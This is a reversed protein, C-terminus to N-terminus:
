AAERARQREWEEIKAEDFLKRRKVVLPQPFDLQEDRCWRWLTVPSIKYRDCIHSSTLYTM